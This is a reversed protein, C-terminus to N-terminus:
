SAKPRGKPRRMGVGFGIAALGVAGIILAPTGTLLNAPLLSTGPITSGATIVGCAIRAGAKGDPDTLQDDENAYIILATGNGGLLSTPGSGLTAGTASTNYSGLGAPGIVLSPLDGAM